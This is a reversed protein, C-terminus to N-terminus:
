CLKFFSARIFQHLFISYHSSIQTKRSLLPNNILSAFDFDSDLSPYKPDSNLVSLGAYRIKATFFTM